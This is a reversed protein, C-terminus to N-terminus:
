ALPSVSLPYGPGYSGPAYDVTSLRTLDSLQLRRRTLRATDTM